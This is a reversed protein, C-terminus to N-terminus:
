AAHAHVNSQQEDRSDDLAQVPHAAVAASSGGRTRAVFRDVTATDLFPKPMFSARLGHKRAVGHIMRRLLVADDAAAMADARHNLNIEFQGPAAESIISDAPLGQIRAAERM